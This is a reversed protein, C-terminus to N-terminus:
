RHHSCSHHLGVWPKPSLCGLWCGLVIDRWSRGSRWCPCSPVMSAFRFRNAQDVPNQRNPAIAIMAPARQNGQM